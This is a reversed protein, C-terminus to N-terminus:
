LPVANFVEVVPPGDLLERWRALRAMDEPDNHVRHDDLEYAQQSEYEFIEIFVHDDSRDHLLRMTIGGPSEYHPKAERLFDLLRDRCGTKARIRLHLVIAPLKMAADYSAPTTVHGQFRGM